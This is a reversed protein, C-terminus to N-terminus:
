RVTNLKQQLLPLYCQHKGGPILNKKEGTEEELGYLGIEGARGAEWGLIFGAM